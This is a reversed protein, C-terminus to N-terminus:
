PASVPGSVTIPSRTLYAEGAITLATPAPSAAALDYVWAALPEGSGSARNVVLFGDSMDLSVVNGDFEAVEIRRIEAGSAVHRITAYMPGDDVREIYVLRRGDTSLEGLSPCSLWCTEFDADVPDPDAAVAATNATLDTFDMGHFGESSWNYLILSQSISIPFAGSEFGGVGVLETVQRTRLNYRRLTDLADEPTTGENRTYYVYTDDGDIAVGNLALGQQSAPILVAVAQSSGVAVRYVLSRGGRAWREQQYLVGGALDDIAYVAADDVLEEVDGNPRIVAVGAPGAVILEAGLSPTVTTTTSSAQPRSTTSTSTTDALSTTTSTAVTTAATTTTAGGSCAAAVLSLAAISIATRM